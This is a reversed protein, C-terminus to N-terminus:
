SEEILEVHAAIKAKLAEVSSARLVIRTVEDVKSPAGASTTKGYDNIKPEVAETVRNVEVVATYHKAM